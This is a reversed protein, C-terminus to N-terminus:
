RQTPLTVYFTSGANEKSEVWIEGKNLNVIEKVLILGLGSSEEEETGARGTIEGIRFLKGIIEKSMGIGTDNIAITIVGEAKGYANISISGQRPTFKIANTLLNSLVSEIMNRDAYVKADANVDNVFHLEKQELNRIYNEYLNDVLGKLEFETPLINKEDRQLKAWEFLNKLLQLLNSASKHILGAYKKIEDNTFSDVNEKIFETLGLFGQFPTRLDHSLITIFKDKTRNLQILEANKEDLEENILKQYKVRKYAQFSIISLFIIVGGGIIIQYNLQESQQELELAQLKIKHEKVEMEMKNEIKAIREQKEAALVSDSYEKHLRANVLAEYPKDLEELVYSLCSYIEAKLAYDKVTEAEKLAVKFKELSLMLNANKSKGFGVCDIRKINDNAAYYFMYGYNRAIYARLYTNNIKEAFKSAEINYRYAECYNKVEGMNISLNLLNRSVGELKGQKTDIELAKTYYENGKEFDKEASYVVGLNCYTISLGSLNNTSENLQLAKKYHEVAQKTNGQKFYNLGINNNIEGLYKNDNLKSAAKIANLFYELSQPLDGQINYNIGLMNYARSLGYEYGVESALNEALKGYEIGKITNLQHYNFALKNYTDVRVKDSIKTVLLNELSDISETSQDQATIVKIFTLLTLIGITLVNRCNM